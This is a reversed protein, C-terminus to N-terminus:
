LIGIGVISPFFPKKEGSRSQREEKETERM